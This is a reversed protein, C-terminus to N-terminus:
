WWSFVGPYPFTTDEGCFTVRIELTATASGKKCVVLRGNSYRSVPWRVDPGRFALTLPQQLDTATYRLTTVVSCKNAIYVDGAVLLRYEGIPGPSIELVETPDLSLQQFSIYEERPFSVLCLQRAAM